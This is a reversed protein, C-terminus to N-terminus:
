NSLSVHGYCKELHCPGSKGETQLVRSGHHSCPDGWFRPRHGTAAWFLPGTRDTNSYTETYEQYRHAQPCVVAQPVQVEERFTDALALCLLFILGQLRYKKVFKLNKVCNPISTIWVDFKSHYHQYVISEFKFESKWRTAKFAIEHLMGHPIVIQLNSPRATNGDYCNQTM